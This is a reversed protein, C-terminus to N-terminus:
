LTLNWWIWNRTREGKQIKLVWTREDWKEFSQEHTHIKYTQKINSTHIHFPVKLSNRNNMSKWGLWLSNVLTVHGSADNYYMYIWLSFADIWQLCWGNRNEFKVGVREREIKEITRVYQPDESSQSDNAWMIQWNFQLIQWFLASHGCHYPYIRFSGMCVM